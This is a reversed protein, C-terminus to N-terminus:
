HKLSWVIPTYGKKHFVLEASNIELKGAGFRSDTVRYINISPNTHNHSRNSERTNICGM